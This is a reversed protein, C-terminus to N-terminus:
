LHYHNDMLCYAHCIWNYRRCVDRFVGLWDSRDQESLYIDARANGRSTVHYLAGAFEIRIPRSM